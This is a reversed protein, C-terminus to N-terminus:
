ITPRSDVHAGRFGKTKFHWRCQKAAGVLHDFLDTVEPEAGKLCASLPASFTRKDPYVPLSRRLALIVHKSGNRVDASFGRKTEIEGNTRESV